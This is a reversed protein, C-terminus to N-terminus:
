NIEVFEFYNINWGDGTAQIRFTYTGPELTFVSSYSDQWNQWGGTANFTCDGINTGDQLINFSGGNSSSATRAKIQYSGAQTIEITYDMYDGNDIYGVNSGGGTDTTTELQVGYMNFYSEAEIRDNQTPNAYADLIISQGPGENGAFDVAKVEISSLDSFDNLIVANHTSTGWLVSDLYINYYEVMVDDQAATWAVMTKAPNQSVIQLNTVASPAESDMGAYDKQYVRVYDIEFKMHDLSEDIGAYGGWNGGFALNIILHFDEDFPWAEWPLVNSSTEPDYNVTYYNVGNVYFRIVNPEWEMEYVHFETEMNSLSISEGVQTGISHNYAGTHITAHLINPDVGVFEMIDIEGSDPWGGYSWDTPLMWIAPWTGKGGAVKARVQVKGYTWDGKDRSVLRASTYEKGSYSEKMAEITLYGNGVYANDIDANTYYQLENNGWGHGGVDYNWLTSNPLGEYDFEDCWVPQWEGINDLYSCEDSVIDRGAYYDYGQSLYEPGILDDSVSPSYNPDVVCENNVVMEDIDCDDETLQQVCDGDELKYGPICTKGDDSPGETTCAVLLLSLSLVMLISLVRKMNVSRMYHKKVFIIACSFAKAIFIKHVYEM